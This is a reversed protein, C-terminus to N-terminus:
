GAQKMGYLAQNMKCVHDPWEPDVFRTPQEMYVEEDVLVHLYANKVDLHCIQAKRLHAVSLFLQFSTMQLTPSQTEM